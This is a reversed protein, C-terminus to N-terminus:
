LPDADADRRLYIEDSAKDTDPDRVYVSRRGSDWVHLMVRKGDLYDIRGQPGHQGQLRWVKTEGDFRLKAPDIDAVNETAETLDITVGIGLQDNRYHGLKLKIHPPQNKAMATTTSPAPASPAVAPAPSAEGESAHDATAAEAQSGPQPAVKAGSRTCGTILGLAVLTTNAMRLM